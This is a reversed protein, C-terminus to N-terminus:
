ELYLAQLRNTLAAEDDSSYVEDVRHAPRGDLDGPVPVGLLDLVTPAVDLINLAMFQGLRPVGPGRLALFGAPAHSADDLGLETVPTALARHGVLDSTLYRLGDFQVFLDPCAAAHPGSYVDRRRVVEAALRGGGPGTVEGLGRALEGMLADAGDPEVCGEPERGKMNLYVQGGYGRAWARTRRWDVAAKGLATPRAAPQALCLYGNASLWDNINVKGDLRQVGHDSVVLVAADPGALALLEGLREDCYRYCDHMADRYRPDPDHRRHAADTYRMFYHGARDTGMLVAFMLDWPRTTMLHRVIDFRQRDLERIRRLLDDRDVASSGDDVSADLLFPSSTQALLEAQLEPPQVIGNKVSPAMFCSVCVGGPIAVPPYSVPVSIMLAKLGAAAALTAVTPVRVLRSHVLKFETYSTGARYTFDTFGFHGPDRGSIMSTWAPPTVPQVISQLEGWIGGEMIGRLNPLDDLWKRVLVPSLGDLGVVLVRSM